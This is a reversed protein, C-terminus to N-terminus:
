DFIYHNHVVEHTDPIVREGYSGPKISEIDLGEAKKTFEELIEIERKMHGIQKRKLFMLHLFAQQPTEFAVRSSGDKAVKYIKTKDRKAAKLMPEHNRDAITKVYGIRSKDICWYWCNSDHIKVLETTIVNIGDEDIATRMKYFVERSDM